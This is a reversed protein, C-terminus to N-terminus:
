NFYNFFSYYFHPLFSRAFTKQPADKQAGFFMQPARYFDLKVKVYNNSIGGPFPLNGPGNVINVPVADTGKKKIPKKTNFRFFFVIM